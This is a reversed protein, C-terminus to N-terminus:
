RQRRIRYVNQFCLLFFAAVALVYKWGGRTAWDGRVTDEMHEVPHQLPCTQWFDTEVVKSMRIRNCRNSCPIINLDHLFSQSMSRSCERQIDVPMHCVLHFLGARLSHIGIDFINGLHLSIGKHYMKLLPNDAAGENQSALPFVLPFNVNFLVFLVRYGNRNCPSRITASVPSSGAVEPNHARRAVLQEVGRYQFLPAPSRVRVPVTDSGPSKLDGTDVM